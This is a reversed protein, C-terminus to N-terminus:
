VSSRFFRTRLFRDIQIIRQGDSQPDLDLINARQKRGDSEQQVTSLDEDRFSAFSPSEHRLFQFGHEDLRFEEKRGRVDEIQVPQRDPAIRCFKLTGVTIEGSAFASSHHYDLFTQITQPRM